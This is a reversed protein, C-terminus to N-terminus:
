GRRPAAGLRACHRARRLLPRRAGARLRLRNTRSRHGFAGADVAGPGLVRRRPGGSQSRRRATPEPRLDALPVPRPDRPVTLMIRRTADDVVRQKRTYSRADLVNGPIGILLLALAVVGVVKWRSLLADIAVAIAPLVLAALVHLYRGARAAATGFGGRDLAAIVLFGIAGALM